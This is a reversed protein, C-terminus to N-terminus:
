ATLSESASVDCGTYAHVQASTVPFLMLYAILDIEM